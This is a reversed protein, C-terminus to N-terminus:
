KPVAPFEWLGLRAPGAANGGPPGGMGPMAQAPSPKELVALTPRDPAFAMTLTLQTEWKKLARGSANEFITVFHTQRRPSQPPAGSGGGSEGGSGAPVAEPIPYEQLM